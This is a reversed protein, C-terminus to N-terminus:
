TLTLALRAQRISSSTARAAELTMRTGASRTAQLHGRVGEGTNAFAFRAGGLRLVSSLWVVEGRRVYHPVFM